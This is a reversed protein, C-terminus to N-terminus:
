KLATFGIFDRRVPFTGKPMRGGANSITPVIGLIACNTFPFGVAESPRLLAMGFQGGQMLSPPLHMLICNQGAALARAWAPSRRKGQLWKTM